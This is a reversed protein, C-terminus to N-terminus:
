PFSSGSPIHEKSQEHKKHGNAAAKGSYPMYLDCIMCGPGFAKVRTLCPV